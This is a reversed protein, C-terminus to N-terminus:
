ITGAYVLVSFPNVVITASESRTLRPPAAEGSGRWKSESSDIVKELAGPVPLTLEERLNAFSFLCLAASEGAQRFVAFCRKEAFSTVEIEERTFVKFAPIRKRLEILQRYFGYVLAHEGERRLELNIKSDLYTSLAAPDPIAGECIGSAHEEAKGKRVAEILEPDSHDIFYHFPAREAYEEGMFLLPLYPSLLVTAAALLLKEMPQNESLRDGCTRNGVQDHNQAFVVFQSTPRDTAPSGHRKRRYRSYDGTYVFAERYAKVLQEFRGFDEYYGTTERTLLTRLAHHFNDCWQADLGYGGLAPPRLLRPDNTDNEAFLYTWRGQAVRQRHVEAALEQLFHSASMDYIWDVADLRLADLHFENLWYLANQRFFEKVPDSDPGDFNLAAGWPTKYRDTFYPGFSSLHNGEPGLHNYVVDLVVALGRAHCADVLQKLEDPGGYSNQPAFPFVGDYGWNRAGPYQSVPMLEVATVGLELLYDLHPIVASFTGETTFTGVHLEYILYEELPLGHWQQDQWPYVGPDVVQSADHVGMPQFRSAPDPFEAAGDIVYLYRDGVAVEPLHGSFYGGVESELPYSKGTVVRVAVHEARPAWVRFFTGGDERPTAGFPLQWQTTKM